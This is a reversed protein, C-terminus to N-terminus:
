KCPGMYDVAIGSSDAECENGYTKGDCGCVQKVVTLCNNPKPTCVGMNDSVKCTGASFKCFDSPDKCTLGAIGGCQEPTPCAIKTCNPVGNSGCICTNCGDGAPFSEGEKYEKGNYKCIVGSSQCVGASAISVKASEAECANGYTKGDCGCVPDYQTTCAQPPTTCVGMNDAVNCTGIAMKCFDAKNPCALGAIGGCRDPTPCAIKTCGVVGGKECSCTNCGDSAPFTEGVKYMKGEYTCTTSVCAGASQVSVGAAAAKCSSDYTKGDCGCVPEVIQTCVSPQPICVGPIDTAGCHQDQRCYSGSPCAPLGRSGCSSCVQTTCTVTGGAVATCTCTNCGDPAAFSEGEKYSQGKYACIVPSTQCEGKYDVSIGAADAGCVNGYTKGDCGCVPAYMTDCSQPKSTCAGQNDKTKCTGEAYKCFADKQACVIGAIGGCITDNCARLTCAIKGATDCSCTNCGDTSPFSKGALYVRGDYLCTAPWEWPDFVCGSAMWLVGCLVACWRRM